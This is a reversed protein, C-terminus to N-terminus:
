RNDPWPADQGSPFAAAPDTGHGDPAGKGKSEDAAPEPKKNGLLINLDDLSMTKKVRQGDVVDDFRFRGLVLHIAVPGIDGRKRVAESAARVRRYQDGKEDRVLLFLFTGLGPDDLGDGCPEGTNLKIVDNAEGKLVQNVRITVWTPGGGEPGTGSNEIPRLPGRDLVHGVVVVQAEHLADSFNLPRLMECAVAPLSFALLVLWLCGARRM